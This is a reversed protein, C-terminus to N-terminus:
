FLFFTLVGAWGQAWRPPPRRAARLWFAAIPEMAGRQDRSTRTRPPRVKFLNDQHEIPVGAGEDQVTVRAVLEGVSHGALNAAAFDAPIPSDGECDVDGATGTLGLLLLSPDIQLESFELVVRLERGRQSFKIANSVQL